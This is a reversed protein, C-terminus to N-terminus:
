VEPIAKGHPDVTPTELEDLLQKEIEPTLFHEISEADEHLHDKPFLMNQSIYSEWLRHFRTVQLALKIGDTTLQYAGNLEKLMGKGALDELTRDLVEPKISRFQLVERGNVFPPTETDEEGIKFITRVINEELIKKRVRRKKLMRPLVGREPAFIVALSFIVSAVVVMWPGTPMKPSVYSINAGLGGSVAGILCSFIVMAGLNRSLCRAAAAPTLILAAMLVVGVMQVGLVITLVIFFGLSIEVLRIPIGITEAYTKDFTAIKLQRYSAFIFGIVGLALGALVKLDSPVMAQAKGFLMSDLGAQSATPIQQILTLQFAGLAFFLSLVIALASDEKVKTKAVLFEMVGYGIFCSVMAGAAIILPDRSHFLLFATTIGPLAAHALADGLLSRRRLFNFSGIAGAAGGLLSAGVFVWLNQAESFNWFQILDNM